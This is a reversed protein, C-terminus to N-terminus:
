GVRTMAALGAMGGPWWGSMRLIAAQLWDTRGALYLLGALRMPPRVAQHIASSYASPDGGELICQAALKASHLAITMGGGTFSPIVAMQDGLRFMSRDADSHIYGYPVRAITLPKPWGEAGAMRRRLHACEDLLSALLGDWTGGDRVLRGRDILLCLNAHGGEVMQLGAYGDRFMILEVVGELAEAQRPALRLHTKFGILDPPTGTARRAGRVDHKGTALVLTSAQLEGQKEVLVAGNGISRIAHGRLIKAGAQEACGLLAADLTRRSLSLAPFPLSAAAVRDGRVLRMQTIPRAGLRAMDIGLEALRDLGAGALFEGCIRHVPEVEREVVVVRRGARALLCATAAGAPGGGAVVIDSVEFPRRLLPVTDGM